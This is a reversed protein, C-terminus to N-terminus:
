YGGNNRFWRGKFQFNMNSPFIKYMNSGCTCTIPSDSDELSVLEEVLENCKECKFEFLPM